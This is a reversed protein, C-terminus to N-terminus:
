LQRQRQRQSREVSTDRSDQARLELLIAELAARCILDANENSIAAGRTTVTADEERADPSSYVSVCRETILLHRGSSAAMKTLQAWTRM